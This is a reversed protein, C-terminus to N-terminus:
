FDNNIEEVDKWRLLIQTLASEKVYFDVFKKEVRKIRWMDQTSNYSTIAGFTNILWIEFVKGVAYYERRNTRIRYQFSIFGCRGDVRTLSMKYNLKVPQYAKM